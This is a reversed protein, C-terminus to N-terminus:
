REEKVAAVERMMAGVDLVGGTLVEAAMDPHKQVTSLLAAKLQAASLHPRFSKLLAAAGAVHPAAMSTGDEYSYAGATDLSYIHSGPAALDVSVVGYNSFRALADNEDSAAVAIHNDGGFSSPYDPFLDNNTGVNGAAAVFLGDYHAVAFELAQSYYRGGWSANLVHIGHQNAFNIAAIAADLGFARDGIKLAAIKVNWNVGTIGLLNNGVAGIVGAVHTGHGTKDMTDSTNDDFNWGYHGDPSVWMNAAIDPHSHDIGSDIVGVVIDASGTTTDWADPMHIREMGWLLKFDPDNPIISRGFLSNPEVAIIHPNDVLAEMAAFLSEMKLCKLHVLVIDGINHANDESQFLVETKDFDIECFIDAHTVPSPPATKSRDLMVVVKGTEFYQM